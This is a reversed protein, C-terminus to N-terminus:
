PAVPFPQRLLYSHTAPGLNLILDLVSLNSSFGHQTEFVQWYREFSLESKYHRDVIHRYVRAAHDKEKRVVPLPMGVTEAVWRLWALSYTALSPEETLILSEIEEAYHEYYPAASYSTRIAHLLERRWQGHESVVIRSTDPPPYAHKAVPITISQVGQSTLIDARNRYSQKSYPEHPTVEAGRLLFLMYELSPLFAIPLLM